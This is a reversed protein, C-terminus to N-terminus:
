FLYLWDNFAQCRFLTSVAHPGGEKARLVMQDFGTLDIWGTAFLPGNRLQATQEVGPLLHLFTESFEAKTRRDAVVAPMRERFARVQFSRSHHDETAWWPDLGYTAEVVRPDFYPHSSRHDLEDHSVAQDQMIAAVYGSQFGQLRKDIARVGTIAPRSPKLLAGLGNRQATREDIWSASPRRPRFTRLTPKIAGQWAERPHRVSWRGIIALRQLDRVEVSGRIRTGNDLSQFADDGGLGTLTEYRGLEAMSRYLGNFMTFNPMPVPRRNRAIFAATEEASPLWGPVSVASLNFHDIVAQSYQREDARAGDFLLRGVILDDRLPAVTGVVISSDLGGSLECTAPVSSHLRARVAEDFVSRCREAAEDWGLSEEHAIQWHHYRFTQSSEDRAIHLTEGPLLVNIGQYLTQSGNGWIGALYAVASQENVTSNVWSIETLPALSTSGAVASGPTATYWPRVGIPDRAVLLGRARRDMVVAVFDGLVGEAFRPGLSLYRHALLEAANAERTVRGVPVTAGPVHHLMGDVVVLVDGDDHTQVWRCATDWAVM